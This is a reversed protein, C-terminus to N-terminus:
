EWPGEQAYLTHVPHARRRCVLMSVSALICGSGNLRISCIKFVYFLAAKRLKQGSFLSKSLFKSLM